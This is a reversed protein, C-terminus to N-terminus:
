EIDGIGIANTESVASGDTPNTMSYNVTIDYVGDPLDNLPTIM